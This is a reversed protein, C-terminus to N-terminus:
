RDISMNCGELLNIKSLEDILYKTYNITSTRYKGYEENVEDPKAGYPLIFYMYPIESLSQYLLGYKAPKSPNYQIMPTRERYPYTTKDIPLYFSPNCIKSNNQNVTEFSECFATIQKIKM